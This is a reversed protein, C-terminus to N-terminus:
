GRRRRLFLGALGLGMLVFTSPEPITELTVGRIAIQNDDDQAYAYFNFDRTFDFGPGGITGTTATAGDISYSWNSSADVTLEFTRSTGISITQANSLLTRSGTSADDAFSLGQVSDYQTLSVGIGYYDGARFIDRVNGVTDSTGGFAGADILGIHVRNATTGALNSIDYTVTLTFGASLDFGNTSYISSRALTSNDFVADLDGNDVWNATQGATANAFAVTIGGGTGTNTGLGDNDFNDQYVIAAQTPIAAALVILAALPLIPFKDAKM